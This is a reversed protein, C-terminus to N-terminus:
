RTSSCCGRAADRARPRRGADAARRGVAPRGQSRPVQAARAAAGAARGRRGDGAGGPSSPPARPGHARLVARPGRARALRGRPCAPARAPRRHGRRWVPDRRRDARHPRRDDSADDDQRRRQSRVARRGRGADVRLTCIACSRPASTDRQCRDEVPDRPPALRQEHRADAQGAGSTPRRDGARERPDRGANGDAILRGFDLVYVYDCVSLVLGMDHDILLVTVGHERPALASTQRARRERRHGARRGARGAPGAAATAGAGPRRRRAQAPRALDRRALSRRRRGPRVGIAGLRRRRPGAPARAPVPRAAGHVITVHERPSWCTRRSPSTTSCSSPSSRGRSAAGPAGTPGCARSTRAAFRVAGSAPRHYGTLADIMSTKGAGNPGILGVM